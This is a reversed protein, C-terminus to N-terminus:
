ADILLNPPLPHGLTINVKDNNYFKTYDLVKGDPYALLTDQCDIDVKTFRYVIQANSDRAVVHFQLCLDSSYLFFKNRFGAMYEGISHVITELNNNLLM